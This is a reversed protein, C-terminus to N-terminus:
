GKFNIRLYELFDQYQPNETAGNFYIDYEQVGNGSKIVYGSIIKESELGVLANEIYPAIKDFIFFLPSQIFSKTNNIFSMYGDFTTSTYPPPPVYPTFEDSNLYKQFELDDQVKQESQEYPVDKMRYLEPATCLRLCCETESKQNYREENVSPIFEDDTVNGFIDNIVEDIDYASFNGLSFPIYSTEDGSVAEYNFPKNLAVVSATFDRGVFEGFRTNVDNIRGNYYSVEQLLDQAFSGSKKYEPLADYTSQSENRLYTYGVVSKVSNEDMSKLYNITDTSFTLFFSDDKETTILELKTKDFPKFNDDWSLRQKMPTTGIPVIPYSSSNIMDSTLFYGRHLDPNHMQYDEFLAKFSAMSERFPSVDEGKLVTSFRRDLERFILEEKSLQNYPVNAEVSAFFAGM